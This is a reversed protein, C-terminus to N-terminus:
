QYWQTVPGSIKFPVWARVQFIVPVPVLALVLITVPGPSLGPGSIHRFRSLPCFWTQDLVLDPVMVFFQVLLM